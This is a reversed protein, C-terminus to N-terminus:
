APAGVPDPGFKNNGRTGPQCFWILQAISAIFGVIPILNLVFFLLLFWGSVGLDHFRRVTVALGPLFIALGYLGVPVLAFVFIMDRSGLVAGLVGGVAALAFIAIINFLTFFWYESRRARGEFDVYKSFCTSVATGFDMKDGTALGTPQGSKGSVLRPVIHNLSLWSPHFVGCCYQRSQRTDAERATAM